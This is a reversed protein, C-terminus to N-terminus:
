KHVYNRFFIHKPKSSPSQRASDILRSQQEHNSMLLLKKAEKSKITSVRNGGKAFIPTSTQNFHERFIAYSSFLDSTTSTIVSSARDLNSDRNFPKQFNESMENNDQKNFPKQLEQKSHQESSHFSEVEIAVSSLL